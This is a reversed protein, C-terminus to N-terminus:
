DTMDFQVLVDGVQGVVTGDEKDENFREQTITELTYGQGWVEGSTLEVLVVEAEPNNKALVEQWESVKVAEV